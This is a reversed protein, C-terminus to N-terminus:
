DLPARYGPKTQLTLGPKKIEVRLTRWRGDHKENSPYYALSYQTRLEEAIQTYAPGLQLLSKVPYVHGGTKGTMENLEDYAAEYLHRNIQMKEMRALKCHDQYQSIDGGKLFEDVYKKLQKRSFKFHLSDQCDRLMRAETFDETDLRLFYLSAGARELEPLVQDYTNFGYSDVGDTLAIIAKRGEVSRLVERVALHLADYFCTGSGGRLQGLAKDLAQRDATLDKILEVQENFQVIAVRDQPRLEDLFRRAARQMLDIEERTSGSTDLLLVLNFPVEAASFNSIKQRVGDEYVLFDEARLKPLYRKGARDTVVVDVSVLDTDLRITELSEEKVPPTIPKDQGLASVCLLVSLCFVPLYGFRSLMLM